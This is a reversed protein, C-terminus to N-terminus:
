SEKLKLKKKEYYRKNYEQKASKYEDSAFYLKPRGVSKIEKPPRIEGKKPRGKGFNTM